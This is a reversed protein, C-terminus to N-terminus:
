VTFGFLNFDVYALRKALTAAVRAKLAAKIKTGSVALDWCIVIPLQVMGAALASGWIRAVKKNANQFLLM